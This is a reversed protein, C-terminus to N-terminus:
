NILKYKQNEAKRILQPGKKKILYSIARLLIVSFSNAEIRPTDIEVIEFASL